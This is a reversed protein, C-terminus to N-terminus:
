EVRWRERQSSRARKVIHLACRRRETLPERSREMREELDEASRAQPLAHWAWGLVRARLALHPSARAGAAVPTAAGDTESSDTWRM